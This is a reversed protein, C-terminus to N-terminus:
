RAKNPALVVRVQRYGGRPCDVVPDSIPGLKLRSRSEIRLKHVGCPVGDRECAEGLMGGTTIALRAVHRAGAERYLALTEETNGSYSCLVALTDETLWAPWRYDRVVLLPRVAWDAYLGAALEGAIGSGGM